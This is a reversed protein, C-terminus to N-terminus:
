TSIIYEFLHQEPIKTLRDQIQKGEHVQSNFM